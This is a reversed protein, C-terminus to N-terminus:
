KLGKTLIPNYIIDNLYILYYYMRCTVDMEVAFKYNNTMHVLFLHTLININVTNIIFAKRCSLSFAVIQLFYPCIRCHHLKVMRDGLDKGFTCRFCQHWFPKSCFFGNWVHSIELLTYLFCPNNPTTTSPAIIPSQQEDKWGLHSPQKINTM